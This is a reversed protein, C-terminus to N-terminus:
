RSNVAKKRHSATCRRSRSRAQLRPRNGLGKNRLGRNRLGWRGGRFGHVFVGWDNSSNSDSPKANNNDRKAIYTNGGLRVIDGVQYRHDAVWDGELEVGNVFNTWSGADQDAMFDSSATNGNTCIYTASGYKVIFSVIEEFVVRESKLEFYTPQIFPIVKRSYDENFILNRLVTTEIREM